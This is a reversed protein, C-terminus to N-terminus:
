DIYKSLEEIVGGLESIKNSVCAIALRVDMFFMYSNDYDFDGVWNDDMQNSYAYFERNNATTFITCEITDNEGWSEDEISKITDIAYGYTEENIVFVKDGVKLDKIKKYDEM